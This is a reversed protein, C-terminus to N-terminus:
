EFFNNIEDVCDDCVYIEEGMIIRVDCKKEEGCFDCEHKEGCSTMVIASSVFIVIALVTSVLKKMTNEEKNIFKNKIIKIEM